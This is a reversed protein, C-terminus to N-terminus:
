NHHTTLCKARGSSRELVRKCANQFISQLRGSCACAFTGPNCHFLSTGAEDVGWRPLRCVPGKCGAEEEDGRLGHVARPPNM